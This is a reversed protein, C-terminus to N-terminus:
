ILDFLKVGYIKATYDGNITGSNSSSYKSSFKITINGSRTSFTVFVGCMYSTETGGASKLGGGSTGQYVIRAGNQLGNKTPLASGTLWLPCVTAYHVGEAKVGTSAVCLILDYDEFDNYTFGGIAGVETATTSETEIHGLSQTALLDIRSGGGGGGGGGSLKKAIAIDYLNM